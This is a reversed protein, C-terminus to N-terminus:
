CNFNNRFYDIIAIEHTGGYHYLLKDMVEDLSLHAFDENTSEIKALACGIIFQSYSCKGSEVDDYNTTYNYKM